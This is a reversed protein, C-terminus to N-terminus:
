RQAAILKAALQIAYRMSGPHAIGQGAIDLASGHDPSTRVIPLGVSLQCGRDRALMKFPILGQDHYPCVVADYARASSAQRGGAQGTGSPVASLRKAQRLCAFLGDAAFPGDCVLGERRLERLVPRILQEEEAGCRAEEGAHPNLGCLALRPRPIRFQVALAQAAVRLTTRLLRADLKQAVRRLPLHRTLLVVRLRDSVFMMVVDRAGMARALHETQGVFGPAVRAIAWKTVPGTVIAQIRGARWLDVASDLYALAAKGAQASSRGLRFPQRHGCDLFSLQGTTADWPEDPGVTRWAPLRRRLTKAARAFVHLDGIVLVAASAPVRDLAKLIVEPGIGCPDGATIAVVDSSSDTAGAAAAPRPTTM